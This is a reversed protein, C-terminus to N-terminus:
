VNSVSVGVAGISGSSFAVLRGRREFWDCALEKLGLDQQHLLEEQVLQMGIIVLWQDFVLVQRRFLSWWLRAKGRCSLDRHRSFAWEM